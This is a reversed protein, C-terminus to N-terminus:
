GDSEPETALNKTITVVNFNGERRYALEDMLSKVFHLGLGGIKGEVPRSDKARPDFPMADDRIEAALRAGEVLVLDVVIDHPNRDPYGYSITNNLLEDLCLNMNDIARSPLAHDAGFREVFDAVRAIDALSNAITIRARRTPPM